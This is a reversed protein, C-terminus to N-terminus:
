EKPAKRNIRPYDPRASYRIMFKEPRRTGRGTPLKPVNIGNKEAFAAAQEQIARYKKIEEETLRSREFRLISASGRPRHTSLIRKVGTESIPVEASSKKVTDVVEKVAVSHKDGKGRSEDYASSVRALRGFEWPKMSDKLKRPRGRPRKEMQDRGRGVM